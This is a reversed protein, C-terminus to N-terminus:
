GVDMPPLAVKGPDDLKCPPVGVPLSLYREKWMARYMLILTRPFALGSTKSMAICHGLDCFLSMLHLMM